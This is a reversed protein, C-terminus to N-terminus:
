STESEVASVFDLDSIARVDAGSPSQFIRLGFDPAIAFFHDFLDAQIGEYEVWATTTTFCYIEIPVGSPGSALQRVMLTM